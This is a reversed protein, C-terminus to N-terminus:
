KNVIAITGPSRRGVCPGDKVIFGAQKLNDRVKRACSYTALIAGTEMLKKIDKFFEETWLNPSKPPSFPDLFVVNFKQNIEKITKTADGMLIKMQLNEKNLEFKDNVLGKILDYNAFNPNLSLIKNLIEIDNELGIIEIKCARNEKLAIDLAAASNYGLGFCIDLIRIDGTKALEKIKCPEAFKKIAEEVAGSKSHYTEAFTESFFTISKDNTIIQKM